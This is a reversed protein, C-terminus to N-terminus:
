GAGVKKKEKEGLCGAPNIQPRAERDYRRRKRIRWWNRVRKGPQKLWILYASLLAVLSIAAAGAPGKVWPLAPFLAATYEAVEFIWWCPYHALAWFFPAAIPLFAESLAVGLSALVAPAVAPAALLNAVVGGWPMGPALLAVLPLTSVQAAGAIALAVALWRPLYNSLTKSFRPALVLLAATAFVSLGFGLDLAQWPDILILFIVSGALAPLGMGARGHWQGLLVITAMMGSRLVSASPGVVLIFLGLSLLGGAIRWRRPFFMGLWMIAGLFIATHSGSVATLHTLSSQKMVTQQDPTMLGRDGLSLGPVLSAWGQSPDPGAKETAESGDFGRRRQGPDPPHATAEPLRNRASQRLRIRSEILLNEWYHRPELIEVKRGTKTSARLNGYGPQLVSWYRLRQGAVLDAQPLGGKVDIEGVGDRCGRYGCIRDVQASARYGFRAPTFGTTLTVELQVRNGIQEVVPDHHSQYLALASVTATCAVSVGTMVVLLYIHEATRDRHKSRPKMWRWLGMVSVAGAVAIVAVIQWDELAGLLIVAGTVWGGIAAPILRFDLNKGRKKPLRRRAPNPNM